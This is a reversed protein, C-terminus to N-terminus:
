ANEKATKSYSCLTCDLLGSGMDLQICKFLNELGCSCESVDRYLFDVGHEEFYSAMVDRVTTKNTKNMSDPMTHVKKDEETM